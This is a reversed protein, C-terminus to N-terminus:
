ISSSSHKPIISDIFVKQVDNGGHREEERKRLRSVGVPFIIYSSRDSGLLSTHQRNCFLLDIIVKSTIGKEGIPIEKCYGLGIARGNTLQLPSKIEGTGAHRAMM